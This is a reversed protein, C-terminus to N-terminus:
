LLLAGLLMAISPVSVNDDLTDTVPLAEVVTAVASILAVVPLAHAWDVAFAGASSFV